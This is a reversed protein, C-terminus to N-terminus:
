SQNKEYCQEAKTTGKAIINDDYDGASKIEEYFFGAFFDNLTRAPM